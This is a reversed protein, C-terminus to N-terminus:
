KHTTGKKLHDMLQKLAQGRHSLRNKEELPLEAASCEHSPLYFIPDYGFGHHGQPTLLIIGSWTAQCIIPCPDTATRLYVLACCFRATRKEIPVDKLNDLLKDINAKTNGKEGAYRASYIGPAYDLADVMLGSDDAIAPLHSQAAASRAKILANEIFTLGTEQAEQLALDTQTLIEIALPALATKIENIKGSNSTALVLSPKM